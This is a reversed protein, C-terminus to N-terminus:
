EGSWATSFTTAALRSGRFNFAFGLAVLGLVLYAGQFGISEYM